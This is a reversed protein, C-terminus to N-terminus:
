FTKIEIWAFKLNGLAFHCYLYTHNLLIHLKDEKTTKKNWCSLAGQPSIVIHIHATSFGICLRTLTRSVEAGQLRPWHTRWCDVYEWYLRQDICRERMAGATWFNGTDDFASRIKVLEPPFDLNQCIRTPFGFRSLNQHSIWSKFAFCHWRLSTLAMLALLGIKFMKVVVVTMKMMMVIMIM